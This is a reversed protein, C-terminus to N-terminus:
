SAIPPAARANRKAATSGRQRAPHPGPPNGGRGGVAHCQLCYQEQHCSACSRINRQAHFGHFNRSVPDLWGDATMPHPGTAVARGTADVEAGLRITRRLDLGQTTQATAVGSALHCNFCFTQARHCSQCRLDDKRARLSHQAIWDGPHYRADRAVGDHCSTCDKKEHCSDCYDPNRRAPVAHDRLFDADHIAAAHFRRPKLQGEPYESVIRGNPQSLHCTVCTVPAGRAEHCEICRDMTPYDDRTAVTKDPVNKHCDTCRVEAELHRKHSFILNPVPISLPAARTATGVPALDKHCRACDAAPAPEDEDGIWEDHCTDCSGHGPIDRDSSLVSDSIDEHCFQCDLGEGTVGAADDPKRVHYDHNFYVPIIQPPYIVEDPGGEFFVAGTTLAGLAAVCSLKVAQSRRSM